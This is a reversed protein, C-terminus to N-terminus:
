EWSAEAGAQETGGKRDCAMEGVRGLVENRTRRGRGVVRGCMRQEASQEKTAKV